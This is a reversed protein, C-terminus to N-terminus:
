GGGQAYFDAKGLNTWYEWVNAVTARDEDLLMLARYYGQAQGTARERKLGNPLYYSSYAAARLECYIRDIGERM